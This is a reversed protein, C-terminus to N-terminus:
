KDRKLIYRIPKSNRYLNYLKQNTILELDGIYEVCRANFSLKFENLGKYKDNKIYPNTMGGLNFRKYKEKSYKEILKWTMLHKANLKKFDKNYGDMFIYVEDRYKAILITALLIGEPNEKLLKTAFVLENKVENLKNEEYIKNTILKNNNKGANKFLKNNLKNCLDIQKQYKKQINILYANTDLKAYYYDIMDRKNFFFLVDEFYKKDRPYKNKVQEYLYDLQDSNGKIVRVGNRDASKIKNKFNKNMNGFLTTTPKNLDIIADYRPKFAEFLNNYGLHYYDLSKLFDIQGQFEPNIRTSDTNYDYSSKIIMPNIKIAMIKKKGLYNKILITFQEVLGKNSYDILFGKPAYAYKFIGEKEILILSAAVIREYDDILGLFLSTYNQTNMIFGYESTQYISFQPYNDTFLNFEANNLEKIYM